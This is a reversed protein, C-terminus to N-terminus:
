SGYCLVSGLGVGSLVEETNLATAFWAGVSSFGNGLGSVSEPLWGEVWDWSRILCGGM